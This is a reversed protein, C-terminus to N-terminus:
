FYNKGVTPLWKYSLYVINFFVFLKCTLLTVINEHVPLSLTMFNHSKSLKIQYLLLSILYFIFVCAAFTFFVIVLILASFTNILIDINFCFTLFHVFATFLYNEIKNYDICSFINPKMLM